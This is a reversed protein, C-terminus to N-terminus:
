PHLKDLSLSSRSDCYPLLAPPLTWPVLMPGMQPRCSGSPGWTPGMFKAISSIIKKIVRWSKLLQILKKFTFENKKRNRMMVAINRNSVPRLCHSSIWCQPYQHGPAKAGPFWYSSFQTCVMQNWHKHTLKLRVHWLTIFYWLASVTCLTVYVYSILCFIRQLHQCTFVNIFNIM